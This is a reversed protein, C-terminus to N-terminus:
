EKYARRFEENVMKNNQLPIGDASYDQIIIEVANDPTTLKGDKDILLVEIKGVPIMKTTVKGDDSTITVPRFRM